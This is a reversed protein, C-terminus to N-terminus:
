AQTWSIKKVNEKMSKFSIKLDPKIKAGLKSPWEIFILNTPDSITTKLDLVNMEEPKEFRYADIHILTKYYKSKLIKYKKEIIFTPSIVNDKVGLVTAVSKTFTTKGSGLDGELFVVTAYSDNPIINKIVYEAVKATDELSSSTKVIKSMTM